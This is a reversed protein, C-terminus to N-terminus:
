GKYYPYVEQIKDVVEAYFKSLKLRDFDENSMDNMARCIKQLGLYLENIAAQQTAKRFIDTKTGDAKIYKKM